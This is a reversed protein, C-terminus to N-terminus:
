NKAAHIEPSLIKSSPLKCTIRTGSEPLREIDFTAGIMRARYAMIHLGMGKSSRANDPLGTGDDTITLTVADQQKELSVNISKAKGHKVANTVAEQAIRYLQTSSETDDLLVPERCEFECSIKFRESSARALEQFGDMLGQAEMEVPQLGRAFTRTLNIAEEVLKVLHRASAAEPLSRAELQGTLVQSAFATATLHQGLGDHLDHGIERQSRESIELLEKELRAREEMENALAVTRQRVRTELEQYLKRLSVLTKVVVFYVTLAIAGNWLPVLLSSYHVGAAFDGTLWAVVSLISIVVGFVGGAFWAALAVPLLYFASFFLAYGTLYDLVGIAAVLLVSTTLVFVKSRKQFQRTLASM